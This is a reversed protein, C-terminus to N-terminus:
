FPVDTEDDDQTNYGGDQKGKPASGFEFDNVIVKTFYLKKGDKEYTETQVNGTFIIQAGKGLYEGITEAKKAFAICNFFETKKEGMYYDCAVTFNCYAKGAQSYKVEPDSVLRGCGHLVNM